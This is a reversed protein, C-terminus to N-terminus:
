AEGVAKQAILESEIKGIRQHLAGISDILMSIQNRMDTRAADRAQVHAHLIGLRKDTGDAKRGIAQIEQSLRMEAISVYAAAMDAAARGDDRLAAWLDRKSFGLGEAISRIQDYTVIRGIRGEINRAFQEPTPKAEGGDIKAKLVLLQEALLVAELTSLKAARTM